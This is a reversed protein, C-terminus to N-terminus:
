DNDDSDGRLGNKVFLDFIDNIAAVNPAGLMKQCEVNIDMDSLVDDTLETENIEKYKNAFSNFWSYETTLVEVSSGERLLELISEALAPVGMISFYLSKLYENNKTGDYIDWEKEPIKIVINDQYYTYVMTSDKINTDKIIQFISSIKDDSVEYEVKSVFGTDFALIDNKEIFFSYGAYDDAFEDTYCDEIDQSAVIYASISTKGSLNFLPISIIQPKVSLNYSERFMTVPCEVVCLMKAKGSDILSRLYNSKLDCCINQLVYEQETIEEDYLLEFHADKYGSYLNDANLVPYPFLRNNCISM